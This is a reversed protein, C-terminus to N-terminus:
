KSRTPKKLEVDHLNIWRLIFCVMMHAFNPHYYSGNNHEYMRRVVLTKKHGQDNRGFGRMNVVQQAIVCSGFLAPRKQKIMSIM